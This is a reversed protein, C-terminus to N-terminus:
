DHSGELTYQVNPYQMFFLATVKKCTSFSLTKIKNKSILKLTRMRDTTLM